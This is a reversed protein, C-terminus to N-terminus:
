GGEVRKEEEREREHAGESGEESGRDGRQGEGKGRGIGNEEAKRWRAGAEENPSGELEGTLPNQWKM